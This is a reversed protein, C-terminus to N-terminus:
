TSNCLSEVRRDDNLWLFRDFAHIGMNSLGAGQHITMSLVSGYRGGHILEKMTDYSVRSDKRDRQRHAQEHQCSRERRLDYPPM